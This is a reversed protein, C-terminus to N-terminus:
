YSFLSMKRRHKKCPIISNQEDRHNVTYKIHNYKVNSKSEINCDNVTLDKPNTMEIIVEKNDFSKADNVKNYLHNYYQNIETDTIKGTNRIYNYKNSTNYYIKYYRLDKSRDIESDLIQRIYSYREYINNWQSMLKYCEKEFDVDNVICMSEQWNDMDSCTQGANEIIKTLNELKEQYKAYKLGAACLTVITSLALPAIQFIRFLIISEDKTILFINRISEFLTLVTTLIIMYINMTDYKQKIHQYKYRVISLERKLKEIKEKVKNSWYNKFLEPNKYFDHYKTSPLLRSINTNNINIFKSGYVNKQIDEKQVNLSLNNSNNENCEISSSDETSDNYYREQYREQYSNNVTKEGTYKDKFSRNSSKNHCKNYNSYKSKIDDQDKLNM